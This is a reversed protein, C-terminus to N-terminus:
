VRRRRKKALVAALGALGAAFAAGAAAVPANDGTNNPPPPTTTYSNTFEGEVTGEEFVETSFTTGKDSEMESGRYTIKYSAEYKDVSPEELMYIIKNGYEDYVPVSAWTIGDTWDNSSSLETSYAIGKLKIEGDGAFTKLTIKLSKPRNNESDNKWIKKVSIAGRVMPNEVNTVFGDERSGETSARYNYAGVTGSEESDEAYEVEVITGDKLTYGTEVARYLYASGDTNFTPLGDISATSEKKDITLTVVDGTETNVLDTWSSGSDASRQVKFSVSKIKAAIADDEDIWTKDVELNTTKMTNTVTFNTTMVDVSGVTELLEEEEAYEVEFGNPVPKEEVSYTIKHGVYGTKYVPLDVWTYEWSNDKSLTAPNDFPTEEHEPAALEKVTGSTTQEAPDTQEASNKQDQPETPEAFDGTEYAAYLYVDVSEPQDGYVFNGEWVKKVYMKTTLPVHKNTITTALIENEVLVAPTGDTESTYDENTEESGLIETYTYLIDEGDVDYVPLNEWLVYNEDDNESVAKQGDLAKDFDQGLQVGNQFLHFMIAEPRLNDRDNDDDWHKIAKLKGIIITNILTTHAPPEDGAPTTISTYNYATVVGSTEDNGYTVNYTNDDVTTISVEIARYQILTGNSDFRPLDDWRYRWGNDETLDVINTGDKRIVEGWTQSDDLSRQIRVKISKVKSNIIGTLDEGFEKTVDFETLILENRFKIKTAADANITSAGTNGEEESTVTVYAKYNGSAPETFTYEVENGAADFVPVEKWTTDDKWENAANLTTSKAIGTIEAGNAEAKLTVTISGPRAGNNDDSDTWEKEVALEGLILTNKIKSLDQATAPQGPEDEGPTHTEEVAYGGVQSGSVQVESGNVTISVEVARYTYPQNDKDYAYLGLVETQGFAGGNTRSISVMLDEGKVKVSEWSNGDISKEVRFTAASVTNAICELDKDWTKEVKLSTRVPTNVVELGNEDIEYGYYDKVDIGNIKTEKVFYTIKVGEMGTKFVPLNKWEAKWTGGEGEKVELPKIENGDEDATVVEEAVDAYKRYLTFEITDPREGYADEDDEWVKTASIDTTEPEHTNTYTDETIVDGALVTDGTLSEVPEASVGNATIVFSPDYKETSEESITYTIENGAEDYVPLELAELDHGWANDKSLTITKEYTFYDTQATIKVDLKDPRYGDRNNDDNWVKAVKLYGKLFVNKIESINLGSHDEDVGYGGIRGDEVELEVPTGDGKQITMGTEVARYELSEGDANCEPLKEVDTEVFANGERELTVTLVNGKYEVDEWSDAGKVSSQVTFTVSKVYQGAGLIEQDWTKKVHLKLTNPTNKITGDGISTTYGNVSTEGVSYTIEKGVQGPQFQPLNEWKATWSNAASVPVPNEIEKGDQDETVVYKRETDGDMWSAYLTFEVSAPRVGFADEDDDWEKIAQVTVPSPNYTNKVTYTGDDNKTIEPEEYKPVQTEDVDYEIEKETQTGDDGTVVKYKPLKTFSWKWSSDKTATTSKIQEGDAKLIIEVSDPRFGDRNDADDWEKIGEIDILSYHNTVNISFEHGTEDVPTMEGYEPTYVPVKPDSPDDPDYIPEEDVSYIIEGWTTPTEFDAEETDVYYKALNEFSGKWGDNETITIQIPNGEEDKLDLDEYTQDGTEPDTGSVYKGKLTVVISDPRMNNENDDDDWEKEVEVLVTEARHYTTETDEDIDKGNASVLTATNDYDRVFVQDGNVILEDVTTYIFIETDKNTVVTEEGGDGTEVVTPHQKKVNFTLTRDDDGLTYSFGNTSDGDTEEASGNLKVTVKDLTLYEPIPDTVVIDNADFAMTNSLTLRYVITGTGDSDVITREDETGTKPDSDKKLTVDLENLTVKTDSEYAVHNLTGTTDTTTALVASGNLAVYTELDVDGPIETPAKMTMYIIMAQKEDLVFDNGGTDKTCDVAIATVDEISGSYDDAKIWISSDTLDVYSADGGQIDNVSTLTTSYYLVPACRLGGDKNEKSAAASLDVSKLTGQWFTEKDPTGTELIDYFVIGYASSGEGTAFNLRYNYEGGLTAKASADYKHVQQIGNKTETAAVQKSYGSEVFVVPKWTITARSFANSDNDIDTVGDEALAQRFVNEVTEGYNARAIKQTNTLPADEPQEVGNVFAYPNITNTGRALINDLPNYVAFFFSTSSQFNTGGIGTIAAPLAFKYHIVLLTRGTAEDVDVEYTFDSKKLCCSYSSGGDSAPTRNNQVLYPYDEANTRGAFYQSYVGKIPFEDFDALTVGPPLLEYFTGELMRYPDELTTTQAISPAIGSDSQAKLRVYGIEASHEAMAKQQPATNLEPVFSSKSIAYTPHIANLMLYNSNASGGARYNNGSRVRTGDLQTVEYSTVDKVYSDRNAAMHASIISKTHETPNLQFYTDLTLNIRYFESRHVIKVQVTNEPLARGHSIGGISSTPVNTNTASDSEQDWLRYQKGTTYVAYHWFDDDNITKVYIDIPDTMASVASDGQWTGNVYTAGYENCTLAIGLISYDATGTTEDIVNGYLYDVGDNPTWSYSNTGGSRSIQLTCDNTDTMTIIQGDIQDGTSTSTGAYNMTWSYRGQRGPWVPNDRMLANQGGYSWLYSTSISPEHTKSFVGEGGKDLLVIAPGGTVKKDLEYQSEWIQTYPFTAYIQLGNNALFSVGDQSYEEEVYDLLEWPFKVLVAMHSCPYINEETDKLPHWGNTGRYGNDWVPRRTHTQTTGLNAYTGGTTGFWTNKDIGAQKGYDAGKSGLYTGAFEGEIPYNVGDYKYYFTTNEFDFDADWGQGSIKGISDNYGVFGYSVNWILYFFKDDSGADPNEGWQDQWAFYVGKYDDPAIAASARDRNRTMLALGLQQEERIELEDFEFSVPIDKKYYDEYDLNGESDLWWNTGNVNKNETIPHGGNVKLPDVRFSIGADMDYTGNIERFNTLVIEDGDIYYCFYDKTGEPVTSGFTELDDASPCKPITTIITDVNNGNWGQFLSSPITFRVNGIPISRGNPIDAHYKMKIMATNWSWYTSHLVLREGDGDYDAFEANEGDVGENWGISWSYVIDDTTQLGGSDYGIVVSFSEMDFVVADKESAVELSETEVDGNQVQDAVQKLVDKDLKGDEDTVDTKVHLVEIEEKDAQIDPDKVAISIKEGYEEPLYRTGDETYISVDYAFRIKSTEVEEGSEAGVIQAAEEIPITVVHLKADAPMRGTATIVVKGVKASIEKETLELPMNEEGAVVPAAENTSNGTNSGEAPANEGEGDTPAAPDNESAGSGEGSESGGEGSAEPGDGSVGSGEGQAPDPDDEGDEGEDEGTQAGPEEGQTKAERVTVYVTPMNSYSLSSDDFSATLAYKGATDGDYDGGWSVSKEVTEESTVTEGDAADEASTVTELVVSLEEPLGIEDKSTGNDVEYETQISDISKVSTTSAAYAALSEFPILTLTVIVVMFQALIRSALSHRRGAKRSRKEM